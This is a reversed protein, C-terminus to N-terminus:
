RGRQFQRHQRNCKYSQCQPKKPIRHVNCDSNEGQRTKILRVLVVDMKHEAAAQYIEEIGNREFTMGSVNDDYSEGVFIHGEREIYDMLIRRQNKLSNMEKDEDRSLRYYIWIRWAQMINM